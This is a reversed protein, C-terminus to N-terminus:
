TGPDISADDVFQHRRRPLYLGDKLERIYLVLKERVENHLSWSAFPSRCSIWVWLVAVGETVDVMEVVPPEGTSRPDSEVIERTKQRVADMDIRYDVPIKVIRKVTDDEKSWNELPQSLLESHPVILRTDTWTRLVTYAFSIDEVTAWHENYVVVDGVRVPDTLAIQLGSVMNGLLPQAAIAVLVSLAGASALISVGLTEFVGVRLLIYGICLLSVVVVSLRRAVYVTTKIRRNEPDDFGLPVVFRQSLAHSLGSVLQVVLWAGAILGVAESGIDLRSVAPGTLIVFEQLGFRFAVIATITAFPLAIKNGVRWLRAPLRRFLFLIGHFVAAWLIVSSVILFAAAVWGAVSTRGLADVRKDLPLWRNLLEHGVERYIAPIQEVAFPSFLWVAEGNSPRFRQLSVPVPRGDLDVVGLEVSRRSYPIASRQLEPLVRADPQDPIDDWDVLDQRWLIYALKLALEPALEAQQEVPLNNLNLANAAQRFEDREIANFFSELTARPTDLRLGSPEGNLGANLEATDFAFPRSSENADQARAQPQVQLLVFTFCAFLLMGPVKLSVLNPKVPPTM